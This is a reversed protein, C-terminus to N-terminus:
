GLAGPMPHPPLLRLVESLFCINTSAQQKRFYLIMESGAGSIIWCSIYLLFKRGVTLKVIVPIAWRGFGLLCEVKRHTRTTYCPAWSYHDWCSTSLWFSRFTLLHNQVALFFIWFFSCRTGQLLRNPSILQVMLGRSRITKSKKIRGRRTKRRTYELTSPHIYIIM